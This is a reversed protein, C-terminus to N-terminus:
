DLNQVAGVTDSVFADVQEELTELDGTVTCLSAPKAPSQKAELKGLCGAAAGKAGGDFADSCKALRAPDALAGAKVARGVVGLLCSTRRAVCSQKGADCTSPAGATPYAPDITSAAGDVFTDVAEELAGVDGTVTCLSAPKAPSQKAELKAICAEFSASCRGLASAEPTEGAKEAGAHVKLLCAQKRAICQLKSADCASAPAPCDSVCPVANDVIGADASSATYGSLLEFVPGASPFRLTKGFDANGFAIFANELADANAQASVYLEIQLTFPVGATVTFSPSTIVGGPPSWGTLVGLIVPVPPGGATSSYSRTGSVLSQPVDSVLAGDVRFAVAM